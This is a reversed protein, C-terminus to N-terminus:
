VGQLKGNGVLNQQWYEADVAEYAELSEAPVYVRFDSANWTTGFVDSGIEPPVASEFVVEKLNRCGTGSDGFAQKGISTVGEGLVVKIITNCGVFAREAIPMNLYLVEDTCSGIGVIVGNEIELGASQYGEMEVWKAYLTVDGSPAYPTKVPSGNFEANDYWILYYGERSLVPLETIQLGVTIMNEVTQDCNTVFTVTKEKEWKAYLTIDGSPVYPEEISSGNFEANDYWGILYYGERTLVPLEIIQLDVTIMNEVTQDCNTVFTITKEKEWKAYLTVDGSPVYPEEVPNGNFEANDYWGLFYYGEKIPIPLETLAPFTIDEIPEGGNTEFHFTKSDGWEWKM